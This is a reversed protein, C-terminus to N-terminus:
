PIPESVVGILFLCLKVVAYRQIIYKALILREYVSDLALVIGFM